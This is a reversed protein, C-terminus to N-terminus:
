SGGPNPLHGFNARYQELSGHMDPNYAPRYEIPPPTQMQVAAEHRAAQQSLRRLVIMAVVVAAIVALLVWNQRLSRGFGVTRPPAREDFAGSLGKGLREEPEADDDTAEEERAPPAEPERATAAKPPTPKEGPPALLPVIMEDTPTLQDQSVGLLASPQAPTVIEAPRAERPELAPAAGEREKWM